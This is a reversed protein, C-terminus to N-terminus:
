LGLQRAEDPKRETGGTQVNWVQATGDASATVLWKAILTLEASYVFGDHKMSKGGISEGTAANWLNLTGGYTYTAITRGDPSLRRGVAGRILSNTAEFHNAAGCIRSRCKM